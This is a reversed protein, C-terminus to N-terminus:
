DLSLKPYSRLFLYQILIQQIGDLRERIVEWTYEEDMFSPDYGKIMLNPRMDKEQFYEDDMYYGGKLGKIMNWM